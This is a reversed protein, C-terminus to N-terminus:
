HQYCPYVHDSVRVSFFWNGLYLKLPITKTRPFRTHIQNKFNLRNSLKQKCKKVARTRLVVPLYHKSVCRDKWGDMLRDTWPPPGMDWLAKCCKGSHWPAAPPTGQWTWGPPYGAPPTGLRPTGQRPLPYGAPPTDQGPPYGAWPPVRGPPVRGPPPYGTLVVYPTSAVRRATHRKRERLLVKKNVKTFSCIRKSFLTPLYIRSTCM